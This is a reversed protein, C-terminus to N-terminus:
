DGRRVVSIKGSRELRASAVQAVDAVGEERLAEDLDHVTIASRRMQDDIARGDRVLDRPKGKVVLGFLHSRLAAEAVLWHLAVLVGSAVLTPLFPATGSVARSAVSGLVIALVMDFATSRGVFRRHGLRVLLLLAGYVVVARAAMQGSSLTDAKEQLGLVADISPWTM